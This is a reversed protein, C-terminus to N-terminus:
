GAPSVTERECFPCHSVHQWGSFRNKGCLGSVPHRRFICLRSGCLLLIRRGAYTGTHPLSGAEGRCTGTGDHVFEDPAFTVVKRAIYVSLNQKADLLLDEEERLAYVKAGTLNRLADAGGMHDIHGHTLLAATIKVGQESAYQVIKDAQDGPDFVLAEKTDENILFWCNVALQGVTVSSVRVRSM